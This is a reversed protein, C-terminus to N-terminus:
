EDETDEPTNQRHRLRKVLMVADFWNLRCEPDAAKRWIEKVTRETSADDYVFIHRETHAFLALVNLIRKKAM